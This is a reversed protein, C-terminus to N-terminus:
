LHRVAIGFADRSSIAASVCPATRAIWARPWAVSRSDRNSVAGSQQPLRARAHGDDPTPVRRSCQEARLPEHCSSRRIPCDPARKTRGVRRDPDGKGEPNPRANQSVDRSTSAAGVAESAHDGLRRRSLHRHRRDTTSRDGTASRGSHVVKTPGVTSLRYRRGGRPLLHNATAFGERPRGPRPDPM